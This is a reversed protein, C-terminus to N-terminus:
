SANWYQSERIIPIKCCIQLIMRKNLDFKHPLTQIKSEVCNLTLTSLIQNTLSGNSGNLGIPYSIM